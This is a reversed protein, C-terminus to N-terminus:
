VNLWNNINIKGIQNLFKVFEREQIIHKLEDDNMDMVDKENTYLISTKDSLFVEWVHTYSYDSPSTWGNVGNSEKHKSILQSHTIDPYSIFMFRKLQVYFTNENVVKLTMFQPTGLFRPNIHSLLKKQEEHRLDFSVSLEGDLISWNIHQDKFSHPYDKFGFLNSIWKLILPKCIKDLSNIKKYPSTM